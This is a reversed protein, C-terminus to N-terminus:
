CLATLGTLSIDDHTLAVLLLRILIVMARPGRPAGEIEPSRRSFEEQSNAITSQRTKSARPMLGTPPSQYPDVFDSDRYSRPAAPPVNHSPGSRPNGNVTSSRRSRPGAPPNSAVISSRLPDPVVQESPELPSARSM